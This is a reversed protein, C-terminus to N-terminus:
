DEIPTLASALCCTWGDICGDKGPPNPASISCTGERDQHLVFVHKGEYLAFDGWKFVHPIKHSKKYIYGEHEIEDPIEIVLETSDNGFCWESGNNNGEVVISYKSARKVTFIDGEKVPAGDAEDKLVRVKDGVKYTNEMVNDTENVIELDIARMGWSHHYDLKSVMIERFNISTVRFIDGKRVGFSNASDVLSKVKDGVKFKTM